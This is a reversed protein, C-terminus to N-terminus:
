RALFYVYKNTFAKGIGPPWTPLLLRPSLAAEAHPYSTLHPSHQQQQLRQSSSSTHLDADYVEQLIKMIVLVSHFETTKLTKKELQFAMLGVRVSLQGVRGDFALLPSVLPQKKCGPAEELRAERKCGPIM